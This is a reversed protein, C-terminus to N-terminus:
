KKGHEELMEKIKLKLDEDERKKKSEFYEHIYHFVGFRKKEKEKLIQLTVREEEIEALRENLQEFEKKYEDESIIRKKYFKTQLHIIEQEIQVKEKDLNPLVEEPTLMKIRKNRLTLRLKKIFSLRNEYSEKKQKFDDTGEKGLFYKEQNKKILDNINEDEKVLDQIKENIGKKKMQNYALVSFLAFFSIALLLYQWYMYVFMLANGRREIALLSLASMARENATTYDGREFAAIALNITSTVAESSFITNGTLLDRLPINDEGLFTKTVDGTLMYSKKPNKMAEIVRRIINEASSASDRTAIIQKAIEGAETYRQSNQKENASKFLNELEAVNVGNERLEIIAAEAESLYTVSEEKSIENIIFLINRKETYSSSIGDSSVLIGTITANLLIMEYSKYSPSKLTVIFKANGKPVIQVISTPTISIYQSPYGVLSLKLNKLTSNAYKNNVVLDFSNTEGRTAEFTQSIVVAAAQTPSVGGGGGTTTVTTTGAVAEACDPDQAHGCATVCTGDSVNYCLFTISVSSNLMSNGNADIFLGGTLNYGYLSLKVTQVGPTLGALISDSAFSFDADISHTLSDTLNTFNTTINGSVNILSSPVIWRAITENTSNEPTGDGMLNRVYGRLALRENQKLYMTANYSTLSQYLYPGNQTSVIIASVNASSTLARGRIENLTIIESEQKIESLFSANVKITQNQGPNLNYINSPKIYEDNFYIRGETLAYTLRFGLSCNNNWYSNDGTNNITINGIFKNLAWGSIAGFDATDTSWTCDWLVPLTNNSSNISEGITDNATIIFTINTDYNGTTFSVNFITSPSLPNDIGYIPTQNLMVVSSAENWNATYNKWKLVAGELNYDTDSINATAYIVVGPDLTANTIPSYSVTGFSPASNARILRTETKNSNGALDTVSLNYFYSNGAILGIQNITFTYNPAAGTFYSSNAIVNYISLTGNFNWSVNALNLETINLYVTFNNIKVSSNAPTLVTFNILPNTIDRTVNRTESDSCQNVLDCATANFYYIGDYQTTLNVFLPSTTSNTLNILTGTSNYIR